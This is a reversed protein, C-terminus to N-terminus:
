ALQGIVWALLAFFAIPWGKPGPKFSEPHKHYGGVM